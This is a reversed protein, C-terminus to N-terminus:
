PQLHFGRRGLGGLVLPGTMLSASLSSPASKSASNMCCLGVCGNSEGSRVWVRSVDSRRAALVGFCRSCRFSGLFITLKRAVSAVRARM